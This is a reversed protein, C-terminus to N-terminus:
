PGTGGGCSEPRGRGAGSKPKDEGRVRLTQGGGLDKSGRQTPTDGGEDRVSGRQTEQVGGSGGVGGRANEALFEQGARRGAERERTESVGRGGGSRGAGPPAPFAASGTQRSGVQHQPQPLSHPTGPLNRCSRRCPPHPSPAPVAALGRIQPLPASPGPRGTRLSSPASSVSKQTFRLLPKSPGPTRLGQPRISPSSHPPELGGLRPSSPAM